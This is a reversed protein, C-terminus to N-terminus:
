VRPSTEYASYFYVLHTFKVVIWNGGVIKADIMYRLAFLVNSEYTLFSRQGFRSLRMGRELVGERMLRPPPRPPFGKATPVHAPWATFIQIFPSLGAGTYFMLNQKNVLACRTIAEGKFAKSKESEM